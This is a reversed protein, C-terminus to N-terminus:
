YQAWCSTALLVTAAEIATMIHGGISHDRHSEALIFPVMSQAVQAGDHALDIPYRRQILQSRVHPLFGVGVGGVFASRVPHNPWIFQHIAWSAAFAGGVRIGELQWRRAHIQNAGDTIFDESSRAALRCDPAGVTVSYGRWTQAHACRPALVTLAVMIIVFTLFSTGPRARMFQIVTM